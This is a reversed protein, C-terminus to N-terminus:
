GLILRNQPSSRPMSWCVAKVFVPMKLTVVIKSDYGESRDQYVVKFDAIHVLHVAEKQVLM